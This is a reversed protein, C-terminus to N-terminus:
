NKWIKKFVEKSYVGEKLILLSFNMKSDLKTEWIIKEKKYDYAELQNDNIIRYIRENNQTKLNLEYVKNGNFCYLIDDNLYYKDMTEDIQKDWLIEDTLINIAYIFGKDGGMYIINDKQYMFIVKDNTTFLLTEYVNKNYAKVVYVENFENVVYISETISTIVSNM